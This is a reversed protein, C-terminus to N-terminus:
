SFCERVEDLLSMLDLSFSLPMLPNEPEGKKLSEMAAKAEYAYGIQQWEFPFFTTVGNYIHLTIGANPEHWRGHIKIHGKEGYIFAETPTRAVISTHLVALAQNDYQLVIGVSEDIDSQGINARAIISSPKGLLLLSLFLPYVGIDLLAGGGLAKNYIRSTADFPSNYGFDANLLKINGIADNAILSLVKEITPLFRTWMAEMLFTHNQRACEVMMQAESLNMAFPKECLVPIKHRLCLLSAECHTVHPTAIYVIDIGPCTVMQQYTGFAHPMEFEKAFADARAIDQSAIAWLQADPLTQLDKAFKRAIKGAGIIGWKIKQMSPQKNKQNM